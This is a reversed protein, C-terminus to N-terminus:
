STISMFKIYGFIQMFADAVHGKLGMPLDIPNNFIEEYDLLGQLAHKKNATYMNSYKQIFKNHINEKKLYIKNKYTPPVLFIKYDYFLTLLVTSVCRSKDNSSMQYEVLVVLEDKEINKLEPVICEKIYEVVLRVRSITSIDKDSTNPALDICGFKIVTIYNDLILKIKHILDTYDGNNKQIFNISEKIKKIENLNIKENIKLLIFGFTKTACDFSLYYM